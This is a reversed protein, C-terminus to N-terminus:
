GLLRGSKALSQYRRATRYSNEGAIQGITSALTPYIHILEALDSLKMRYRIALALEHILEGAHPCIAHGGVIRGGAVVIVIEGDTVGDARARDSHELDRSHVEVKRRGHREIAEAETLGVHAVEPDTFTCWPILPPPVGRGPLFMDRVALVADYAATHTFLARGAVDGVAYISAVTTRNHSDVTVGKRTIEVGLNDLGLGHANPTRGTAVLLGQATVKGGDIWVNVGDGGKRVKTATTGLRVDVGEERLIRLLREGHPPHDRPLLNPEMELVTVEVDLRNLSQAIECAIPGGGIIVLSDPPRAIEFLNESTLFDVEAIGDIPPIFPRSGTCVLTYRTKLMRDGVTVERPGSVIAEGEILDIGLSRFREPDDDTAAIEAQIATIRQWVNTLDIEPATAEIAFRDAHRITHAVRASAILAKSPVCGTWLCDGGLRAREVAAVRLGLQESAFEAAITGASGMGIVVLDYADAAQRFPNSVKM